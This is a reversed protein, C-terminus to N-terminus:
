HSTANPFKRNLPQKRRASVKRPNGRGEDAFRALDEGLYRLIKEVGGIIIENFM